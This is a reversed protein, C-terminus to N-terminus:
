ARRGNAVFVFKRATNARNRAIVSCGQKPNIDDFDRERVRGFRAYDIAWCDEGILCCSAQGTQPLATVVAIVCLARVLGIVTM